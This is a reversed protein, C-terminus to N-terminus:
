EEAVKEKEQGHVHKTSGAAPRKMLAGPATQAAPKQAQGFLQVGNPYLVGAKTILALGWPTQKENRRKRSLDRKIQEIEPIEWGMDRPASVKKFRYTTLDPDLNSNIELLQYIEFSEDLQVVPSWEGIKLKAMVRSIEPSDLFMVQSSVVGNYQVDEPLEPHREAADKSLVIEGAVLRNRTQELRSLFSANTAVTATQLEEITTKLKLADEDSVIFMDGFQSRLLAQLTAEERIRCILAEDNDYFRTGYTARDMRLRKCVEDVYKWAGAIDSELPQIGRSAAEDLMAARAMFNKFVFHRAAQEIRSEQEKKPASTMKKDLAIRESSRLEFEKRTLTHSGVQVLVGEPTLDLYSRVVNNTQYVGPRLVLRTDRSELGPRRCGCTVGILLAVGVISVSYNTRKMRIVLGAKRCFRFLGDAAGAEEVHIPNASVSHFARM